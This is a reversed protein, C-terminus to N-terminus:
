GVVQFQAELQPLNVGATQLMVRENLAPNNRLYMQTELALDPILLVTRAGRQEVVIGEGQWEPHQLLYVLTWHEIARREAWRVSSTVAEAAGVREMVQREDLLPTGNLYARLQQHVVLDLYRRLPSTCQTYAQLGLGAHPAPTSKQQSRRMTRRLAFMGAPTGDPVIETAEPPEQTNFPLPIGKEIAFRAVAEGTLLMAERVLDRSRLNPLPRIVVEDGQVRVKVEPLDITVAGQASRRALSRTAIAYLSRLLADEDLREEAEEYTLRTVRVWSPVIELATVEGAPTLDLGFSLAPSVEMVGLALAHTAEPPLMHVTGEPLYLNAGRGRAELDAPSDPAVVAAVDAVHVWLREGELSLADDPDSSGFDDIALATLYTLDRREEAPLAPLTFQPETVPVNVRQPYPNVREDWYGIELLLAHAQEPTESRGLAQLVRSGPRQGLALEVVDRLNDGDTAPDYTAAQLRALFANWAQEAAARAARAAQEAEVFDAPHALVAAPTGSFYLGDLVHEWAAWATAPTYDGYALEALETLTTTEGALLEWAERIEGNHSRLAALNQLPGPHLLLVDKPRVSVTEGGQLAINIKKNGATTVRGPRNKYLILSGERLLEEAM